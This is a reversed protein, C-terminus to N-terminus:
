EPQLVLLPQRELNAKGKPQLVLITMLVTSLFLVADMILVPTNVMQNM